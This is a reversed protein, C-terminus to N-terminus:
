DLKWTMWDNTGATRDIELECNRYLVGDRDTKEATNFRV